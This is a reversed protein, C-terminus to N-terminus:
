AAHAIETAFADNRVANVISQAHGADEALAVICGGGGAGTVKAGLAGAGIACDRLAEVGPTSLDLQRLVEHNRDLCHALAIVDGGLISDQARRVLARVEEFLRRTRLPQRELQDAVRAVMQKTESRKGSNAIVLHLPTPTSLGSAGRQRDFRVLGGLAAVANDVGSPAGHFFREWEFAMDGLEARTRDIGLAKDVADFIAVGLAASCGLGAGPPLDV